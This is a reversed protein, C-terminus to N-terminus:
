EIVYIVRRSQPDILVARDNVWTYRYNSLGPNGELPYLEVQPPLVAGAALPGEVRVSPRRNQMVYGRVYTRDSDTISGVAGGALAGAAGGVVAGVPGGVIAGGVAGTAAGAAAGSSPGDQALAPSFALSGLALSGLALSAMALSALAASTIFKSM